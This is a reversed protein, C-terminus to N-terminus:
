PFYVVTGVPYSASYTGRGTQVIHLVSFHQGQLSEFGTPVARLGISSERSSKILLTSFDANSLDLLFHTSTINLLKMLQGGEEM